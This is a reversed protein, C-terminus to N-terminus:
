RSEDFGASAVLRRREPRLPGPQALLRMLLLDLDLKSSLVTAMSLSCRRLAEAFGFWAFDDMEPLRHGSALDFYHSTCRLTAVDLRPALTAFLHLDKRPRYDFRGLDILAAADFCLGTEEQTERLAAERPREGVGSVGKPLDWHHQRTVHCLLVEREANLILVGCSLRKTVFMDM